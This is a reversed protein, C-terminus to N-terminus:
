AKVILDIEEESLERSEGPKLNEDLRLRGMSLRKLYLVEHNVAKFMRKIQHFKGEHITAIVRAGGSAIGGELIKLKAPLCTLGGDIVIGNEFSEIEDPTLPSDLQVFYEKNIHKKPSLINHAFTGDDTILLFGETDRDLRGAPFLGPRKMQPPLLDIVTEHRPDDSASIVGAPKNMMYYVYERYRVPDGNVCVTDKGTDVKLASNKVTIGNVTVSGGSILDKIEKRSAVGQGSLMRDLRLISM